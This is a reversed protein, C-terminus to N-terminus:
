IGELHVVYSDTVEEEEKSEKNNNLDILIKMTNSDKKHSFSNFAYKIKVIKNVGEVVSKNKVRLDM